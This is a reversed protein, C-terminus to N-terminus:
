IKPWISSIEVSCINILVAHQTKCQRKMMTLGQGRRNYMTLCFFNCGKTKVTVKDFQKTNQYNKACLYQRLNAVSSGV